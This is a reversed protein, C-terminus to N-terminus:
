SMLQLVVRWERPRDNIDYVSIRQRTGLITKGHDISLSISPGLRASGVDGHRSTPTPPAFARTSNGDKDADFPYSFCVGM